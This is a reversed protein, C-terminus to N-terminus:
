ATANPYPEYGANKLAEAIKDAKWRGDIGLGKEQALAMLRERESSETKSQGTALAAAEEDANGCVYLIGNVTVHKPYEVFSYPMDDPGNGDFAQIIQNRARSAMTPHGGSAGHGVAAVVSRTSNGRSEDDDGGDYDIRRAM